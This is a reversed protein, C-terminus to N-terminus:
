PVRAADSPGHPNEARGAERISLAILGLANLTEGVLIGALAGFIGLRLIGFYSVAMSSVACVLTITSMLRFRGRVTLLYQLQDRLVTVLAVAFWLGLLTDRQAFDKRLVKVFIWDRLLWVCVLYASAALLLAAAALLMRRLVRHASHSHMWAATTPLMMTGLGASVLTIPMITLRTAAIAAVAPVSLMGAVLYNYGQSFMWHVGAGAAAWTGLPAFTRLIGPAAAVNWPERRWLARAGLVGGCLAAAGMGAVAVPAPATTRTALYAGGLLCIAYVCDAKLVAVPQRLGLLVMRFFERYLTFPIAIGAAALVTAAVPSVLGFSWLLFSVTLAVGSLLPWLRRQDRYVGGILDARDAADGRTMRVVLQPQIFTAQLMSALSFANFVLVYLGYHLDSTRRILILGVLLNAGSVLAQMVVASALLRILARGRGLAM